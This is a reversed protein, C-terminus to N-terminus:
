DEIVEYSADPAEYISNTQEEETYTNNPNSTGYGAIHRFLCANTSQIYPTVYFLGVLGFTIGSLLLWPIFSLDLVFANAKNGYMMQRSKAFAEPSSINTDEALLYPIMRYEYLKYIGPIVLCLSWLFVKIGMIFMIKVCNLYNGKFPALITDISAPSSINKTFFGYLGCLLPNVLFIAIDIAVLSLGTILFWHDWLPYSFFPFALISSDDQSLTIDFNATLILSDGSVIVYILGVLVCTWYNRTFSEKAHTKLELRTWTTNM